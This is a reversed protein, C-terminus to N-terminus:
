SDFLAYDEDTFIMDQIDSSDSNNTKLGIVYAYGRESFLKNILDVNEQIIEGTTPDYFMKEMIGEEGGNDDFMDAVLAGFMLTGDDNRGLVIIALKSLVDEEIFSDEVLDNIISLNACIMIRMSGAEIDEIGKTPNIGRIYSLNSLIELLQENTLGEDENNDGNLMPIIEEIPVRYLESVTAEYIDTTVVSAVSGLPVDLQRLESNSNVIPVGNQTIQNKGFNDIKESLENIKIQINTDDYGSEGKPGRDGKDGKDGKVGQPGIPGIEGRPGVEGQIGQIGQIGQEGRDGKDGKDGKAGKDGKEGKLNFFEFHFKKDLGEGTTTIEVRPTGVKNDISATAGLLDTSRVVLIWDESIGPVERTERVCAYLCHEYIVFDQVFDNNYYTEGKTYETCNFSKGKEYSRSYEVSRGCQGSNQTSNNSFFSRM